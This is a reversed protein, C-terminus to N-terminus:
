MANLPACNPDGPAALTENRAAFGVAPSFRWTRIPLGDAEGAQVTYGLPFPVHLRLEL